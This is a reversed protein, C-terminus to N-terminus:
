KELQSKVGFISMDAAQTDKLTSVVVHLVRRLNYPMIWFLDENLFKGGSLGAFSKVIQEKHKM